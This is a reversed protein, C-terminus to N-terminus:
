CDIFRFSDLANNVMRSMTLNKKVYEYANNGLQQIEDDDISKLTLLCDEIGKFVKGNWSDKLYAYEVCQLIEKSRELTFVPKRYAMAEVISLGVWGPQFYIDSVYFLENKKGRDYVEGFDYVNMFRKFDPKLKGEGIIIFAYTNPDLEEILRLLLDARRGPENFRACYIIVRPQHIDYKLKLEAKDLNKNNIELIEDLNSITNDLSIAKLNPFARKWLSCEKNTYFWVGDSFTIMWRLLVNPKSEEHVYRKVSIGHGWLIIKQKIFPKFFLILWTSLHGFNLMLVIIDYKKNLFNFPNYIIFKGLKISRVIKVKTNGQLFNGGKLTESGEYCFVDIKKAQGLKSFFEERYHPVFPQLIAVEM